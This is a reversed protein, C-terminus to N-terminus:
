RKPKTFRVVSGLQEAIVKRPVERVEGLTLNGLQFSGYAVRILRNVKCGIHEFVKRIERNKGESLTVSVWRNRGTGEEIKLQIPAYKIGEVTVGKALMAIAEESIPGYVRARYRRKWGTSPLEIHRAVEGDNTLLLLGETNMDLRGISIVRPLSKGLAQFVTPRGEPDNHTTVLGTPKYYIWLRPDEKAALPTGKVTVEDTPLVDLAASHIPKGNVKVWGNEIWREAERRSCLGSRAIVKAIRDGDKEPRSAPTNM